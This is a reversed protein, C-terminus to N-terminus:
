VLVPLDEGLELREREECRLAEGLYERLLDQEEPFLYPWSPRSDRHGQAIDLNQLSAPEKCPSTYSNPPHRPIWMAQPSSPVCLQAFARFYPADRGGTLGSESSDPVEDGELTQLEEIMRAQGWTKKVNGWSNRWIRCFFDQSGSNLAEDSGWNSGSCGL